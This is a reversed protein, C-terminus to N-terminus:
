VSLLAIHHWHSRSRQSKAVSSLLPQCHPHHDAFLAVTVRLYGLWLSNRAWQSHLLLAPFHLAAAWDRLMLLEHVLCILGLPSCLSLHLLFFSLFHGVLVVPWLSSCIIFGVNVLKLRNQNNYVSSYSHCFLWMEFYHYLLSTTSIPNDVSDPIDLAPERETSHHCRSRRWTSTCLVSM